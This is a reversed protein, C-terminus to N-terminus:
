TEIEDSDDDEEEQKIEEQSIVSEDIPASSQLSAISLIDDYNLRPLDIQEPYLWPKHDPQNKAKWQDYKRCAKHMKNMVRPAMTSTLKNVAWAPLRGKPDSQTVYVVKCGPQNKRNDLPTIYYGTFYSMGRVFGKKVPIQKHNVSHNVICYERPLELWSRLIVFDRNKLPKPTKLAYYGIDNFPNLCCIEYGEIMNTDWQKRYNPDQLVDYLLSASIDKYTAQVKIMKFDSVDNTKTWVATGKKNYVENWGEHCCCLEKLHNFDSDDAVRVEGVQM